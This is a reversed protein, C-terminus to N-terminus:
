LDGLTLLANYGLYLTLLWALLGVGLLWAPYRYGGLLDRRRWAVWLLVGFGIPLILGNFTGAFILLAVPTEEILVFILTSVAIFAVTMLNRTREPTRSSTLFSVSTYAAGIVSTLAAAWLILGFVRLGIDGAAAQFASGAPDDTALAAGGAVVGLIALFLLARMVGTVLIGVVSSRTIEKVHEPGTRGSDLLRHAGAYTIYGGVTGGIITTVAVFDFTDPLVVSRLAEGVPPGSTIAIALTAVIMVLGLLVVIRDLALGAKKSLFIGIALAASIAGGVKPEVGLMADTGLGSGAVNGINFVLGGAVVLATLLYGVGPLVRNGLEHARLGSVGVVRWVNMQVAIDVVVSLVIACAFAAGLQVTFSATQTIFGPGIAST